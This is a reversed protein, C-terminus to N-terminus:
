WEGGNSVTAEVARTERAAGAIAPRVECFETFGLLAKAMLARGLQPGIMHICLDIIETESFSDHMAVWFEDDDRLAEHDEAFREILQIILSERPSYGSWAYDFIHDYFEDPIEEDAETRLGTGNRITACHECGEFHALRQRWAERERVTITSHAYARSWAGTHNHQAVAPTGMDRLAVIPALGEPLTVQSM